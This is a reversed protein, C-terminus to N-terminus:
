AKEEKKERYKSHIYSRIIQQINNDVNQDIWKWTQSNQFPSDDKILLEVQQALADKNKEIFSEAKIFNPWQAKCNKIVDEETFIRPMMYPRHLGYRLPGFKSRYEICFDKAWYSAYLPIDYQVFVLEKWQIQNNPNSNNKM